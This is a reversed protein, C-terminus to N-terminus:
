IKPPVIFRAVVPKKALYKYNCLKNHKTGEESLNESYFKAWVFQMGLNARGMDNNVVPTDAFVFEVGSSMLEFIKASDVDNRSLRDPKHAVVGQVEGNEVACIMKNFIPRGPVKASKSETLEGIIELGHRKVLERTISLQASISLVQKEKEDTSKRCYVFYKREM